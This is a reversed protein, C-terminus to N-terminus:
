MLVELIVEMVKDLLMTAIDKLLPFWAEIPAQGTFTLYLADFTLAIPDTM